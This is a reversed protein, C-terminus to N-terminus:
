CRTRRLRALVDLFYFDGVALGSGFNGRQGNATGNALISAPRPAPSRSSLYATSLQQLTDIAAQRYRKAATSSRPLLEALQLLGGAAIAAASSDKWAKGPPALFDWPPVRDAPLHALYADAARQATALFLARNTSAAPTAAAAGAFGAVAWAQGRSWTSNASLGQRTERALVAGTSASFAVLQVTTGDPRVHERATRAAHAEALRQWTANGGPLGAATFLLQLNMLNDIIVQPPHPATNKNHLTHARPCPCLPPIRARACSLLHQALPLEPCSLAPCPLWVEVREGGIAGHSRVCGVRPEYRAALSAAAEVLVGQLRRAEASGPAAAALALGTSPMLIFGIDHTSNRRKNPELVPLMAQAATRWAGTGTLEHMRWCSGALFGANWGTADGAQWQGAGAGSPVTQVPFKSGGPPFAALTANLRRRAHKLAATEVSAPLQPCCAAAAATAAAVALLGFAGLRLLARKLLM